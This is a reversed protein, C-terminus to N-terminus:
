SDAVGLVQFDRRAHPCPVADPRQKQAVECAVPFNPLCPVSITGASSVRFVDRPLYLVAKPKEKRKTKREKQKM